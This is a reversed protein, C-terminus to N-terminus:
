TNSPIKCVTIDIGLIIFFEKSQTNSDRVCRVSPFSKVQDSPIDEMKKGVPGLRKMEIVALHPDVWEIGIMKDEAIIASQIHTIVLSTGPKVM